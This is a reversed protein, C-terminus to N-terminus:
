ITFEVVKNVGFAFGIKRNVIHIRTNNMYFLEGLYIATPNGRFLFFKKELIIVSFAYRDIIAVFKNGDGQTM